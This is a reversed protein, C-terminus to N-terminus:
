GLRVAKISFGYYDAPDEDAEIAGEYMVNPHNKAFKDDLSTKLEDMEAISNTTRNM